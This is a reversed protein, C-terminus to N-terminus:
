GEPDIYDIGMKSCMVKLIRYIHPIENRVAKDVRWMWRIIWRVAYFSGALFGGVATAITAWESMVRLSM